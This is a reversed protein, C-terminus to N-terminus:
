VSRQKYPGRKKGERGPGLNARKMGESVAKKADESRSVGLKALRMKKRSEQSFTGGKNWPTHGKKWENLPHQGRHAESMKRKAENTHRGRSGGRRLNYGDPHLTKFELIFADEAADLEAQTECSTLVTRVFADFGHKRIARQVVMEGDRRCHQKWREDLTDWTQGVYANGNVTNFLHYIIGHM